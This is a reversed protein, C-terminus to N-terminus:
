ATHECSEWPLAHCGCHPVQAPGTVVPGASVKARAPAKFPAKVPAQGPAPPADSKIWKQFPTLDAVNQIYWCKRSPDWRAGLAKAEDKEAFPTHLNVRM